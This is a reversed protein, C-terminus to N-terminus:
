CPQRNEKGWYAGNHIRPRLASLLQCFIEIASLIALFPKPRLVGEM